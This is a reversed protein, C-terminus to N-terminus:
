TATELRNWQTPRGGLNDIQLGREATVVFIVLREDFLLHDRSAGALIDLVLHARRVDRARFADFGDLVLLLLPRDPGPEDGLADHLADLNLAEPRYGMRAEWRLAINLDRVMHREDACDIRQVSYGADSLRGIADSLASTATFLTVAGERLFPWDARGTIDPRRM